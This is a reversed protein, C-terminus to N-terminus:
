MAFTSDPMQAQTGFCASGVGSAGLLHSPSRQEKAMLKEVVLKALTDRTFEGCHSEALKRAM